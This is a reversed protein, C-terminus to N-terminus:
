DRNSRVPASIKEEVISGLDLSLAVRRPFADAVEVWLLDSERMSIGCVIGNYHLDFVWKFANHDKRTCVQM